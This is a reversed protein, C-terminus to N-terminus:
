SHKKILIAKFYIIIFSLCYLEKKILYILLKMLRSVKLNSNISVVFERNSLIKRVNVYKNKFKNESYMEKFCFDILKYFIRENHIYLYREINENDINKKVFELIDKRDKLYYDIKKLDYGSTLSENNIKMYHYLIENVSSISKAKLIADCCFKRDEGLIISENIILKNEEIFKRRFIKNWLPLYGLFKDEVIYKFYEKEIIDGHLNDHEFLTRNFEMYGSNNEERFGCSVIDFKGEIAKNYMKYYMDKEIYDDIDVFGIYEGRAEKIGINRAVSAGKNEKSILKIRSDQELLKRLIKISNDTSGDNIIIIEIDQLVQNLVSNLCKDIYKEANYVPIIISVKINDM